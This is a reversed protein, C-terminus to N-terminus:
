QVICNNDEIFKARRQADEIKQAETEEFSIIEVIIWDEKSNKLPVDTKKLNFKYQKESSVNSNKFALEPNIPAYYKDDHTKILFFIPNFNTCGDFDDKVYGNVIFSEDSIKKDASFISNTNSILFFLIFLKKLNMTM